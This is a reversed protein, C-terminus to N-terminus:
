RAKSGDIKRVCKRGIECWTFHTMQRMRHVSYIFHSYLKYFSQKHTHPPTIPYPPSALNSEFVTAPPRYEKAFIANDKVHACVCVCM